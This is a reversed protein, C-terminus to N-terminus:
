SILICCRLNFYVLLIHTKIKIHIICWIETSKIMKFKWIVNLKCIFIHLIVKKLPIIERMMKIFNRWLPKKFLVRIASSKWCLISTCEFAMIHAVIQSPVANSCLITQSCWANLWYQSNFNSPSRALLELSSATHVSPLSIVRKYWDYNLLM